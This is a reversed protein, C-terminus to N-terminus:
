NKVSNTVKVIPKYTGNFNWPWIPRLPGHHTRRQVPLWIHRLNVNEYKGLSRGENIWALSLRVWDALNWSDDVQDLHYESMCQAISKAFVQPRIIQMCREKHEDFLAM